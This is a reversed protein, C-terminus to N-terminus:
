FLPMQAARLDGSNLGAAFHLFGPSPHSECSVPNVQGGSPSNDTPRKMKHRWKTSKKFPIVFMIKPKLGFLFGPFHVPTSPFQSPFTGAKYGLSKPEMGLVWSRFLWAHYFPNTTRATPLHLSVFRQNM